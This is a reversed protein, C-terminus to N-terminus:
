VTKKDVVNVQVRAELKKAATTTVRYRAYYTTGITGAKWIARVVTGVHDVTGVMTVSQDVDSADYMKVEQVSIPDSGIWPAFDLSFRFEEWAYKEVPGLVMVEYDSM